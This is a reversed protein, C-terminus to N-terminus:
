LEDHGLLEQEAAMSDRQAQEVLSHSCAAPTLFVATYECRNPEDVKSVQESSGCGVSVQSMEGNDRAVELQTNKRLHHSQCLLVAFACLPNSTQLLCCVAFLRARPSMPRLEVIAAASQM